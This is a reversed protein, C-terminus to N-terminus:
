GDGAMHCSWVVLVRHDVYRSRTRGVGQYAVVCCTCGLEGTGPPGEFLVARPRNNAFTKRTARALKAYVDPRLLPLLLCDEITRKQDEYGTPRALPWSVRTCM